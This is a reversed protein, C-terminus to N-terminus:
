RQTQVDALGAILPRRGGGLKRTFFRSRAQAHGEFSPFVSDRPDPSGIHHLAEFLFNLDRHTLKGFALTRLWNASLRFLRIWRGRQLAASVILSRASRLSNM